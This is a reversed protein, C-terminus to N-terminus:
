EARLEDLVIVDVESVRKLALDNTIIADCDAAIAVAIQFADALSLNHSARIAAARQAAKEDIGVFETNNGRVICNVFARTLEPRQFRCPYVLCETLTVPSTVAVVAGSDIHRFVPRMIELYAENKEIFYIVPGSDLFLRRIGNLRDAINM